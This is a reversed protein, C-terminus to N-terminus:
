PGPMGEEKLLDKALEEAVKGVCQKVTTRDLFVGENAM